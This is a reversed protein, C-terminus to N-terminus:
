FDGALLANIEDFELNQEMTDQEKKSMRGFGDRRIDEESRTEERMKKALMVEEKTEKGLVGTFDWPIHCALYRATDALNDKAHKKKTVRKITTFEAAAKEVEPDGAILDLMKFKFLDNVIKEGIEHGKESPQFAEGLGTAITDFDKCSQDYLQSTLSMNGRLELFKLVVDGATTSIGDGRWAKFMIAKRFDPKVAIFSIAAPHGENGGSGYDACGYLHWTKLIKTELDPPRKIMNNAREFAEYKLGGTVIFKGYIRKQVEAKTSCLAIQEQIRETTWPSPSGDMYTMCEFLSVQQKFAHPYVEEEFEEPEITRRWIDQGLTATFVMHFYGQTASIRMMLENLMHEPLEEDCFIADVSGGQMHAVKMAYTRFFVILGSNFHLAFPTGDKEELRWGYKPHDRFEGSPMFEAWKTEWEITLTTKDPYFYWFQRPKHRWLVPWKRTDTAWDICKRIQTSSKSIQNAACLFNLRNVSTYYDYAWPYWSRGYLHPLGEKLRVKQEELALEERRAALSPDEPLVKEDVKGPLIREDQSM